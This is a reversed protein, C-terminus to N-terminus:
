DGKKRLKWAGGLLTAVTLLAVCTGSIASACGNDIAPEPDLTVTVDSSDAGGVPTTADFTDAPVSTEPDTVVPDEADTTQDASDNTDIPAMGDITLTLPQTYLTVDQDGLRYTHSLLIIVEGSIAGATIKSGEVTILEGGSLVTVDAALRGDRRDYYTVLLEMDRTQDAKLKQSNTYVVSKVYRKLVDANDGTLGSYGWIFHNRYVSDNGRFTWPFVGIGRILAARIANEGYGSYSPNLTANTKGIFSMVAKMDADSDVEDLYGSCLAGVSMEPYDRRMTEMIGVNFTIVSCQGYMDYQDVLRKIAPVIETKNSKIEIFLRCNTGQFCGLYDELRPIRCNKYSEHNEYGKNVYLESLQAWTSAEVPLDKNCTRGTTGDHMVVVEGDKTLYVDIEICDAGHEFAYLAGEITNEPAKSPIGRHGVNLPQRTMTNEPLGCALALLTATDDSIVGVAGSLLADYATPEDMADAARVWVNIQNDYLYQVMEQRAFAAPLVAVSAANSKVVRRIELCREKTLNPVGDMAKTFDVAGRVTPMKTRATNVLAADESLIMFDSFKSTKVFTALADVAATNSPILIPLIKYETTTLVESFTSFAKGEGNLIELKDNVTYIAAAPLNKGAMMATLEAESNVERTIAVDGVINTGPQAVSIYTPTTEGTESGGYTGDAAANQAIEEATLVRNYFRIARYTTEFLKSGEAHGIFLNDAGMAKPAAVEAMLDGDVYICCKGGVEFTVAITGHDILNLGDPVTPRENGPNAAFKFELVDNSNRRFLAFHDNKSNLFTNFSGGISVFEDFSLEVTFANSNVLDVIPQPFNHQAGKVYLGADNFYSKDSVNVPLDNDGILDEWVAEQEGSKIGSYLSVLGDSVYLDTVQAKGDVALNHKIESESLARNYFRISRYLADFHRHEESHGFFLDGVGMASPAPMASMREGNIYIISEGGVEYTVTIVADQLLALCNEVKNRSPAANGAFKFELVDESIRRFLAFHDNTSNMITSYADATSVLNAINIEVTFADGNVTDVIAQPFYNQAASLMLGDETFHNKDNKKVTVDNGGILDEWVDSNTNHGARTNQTGSYLAVLGATVYGTKVPSVFDATATTEAAAPITMGMLLTPLAIALALWLSLLKQTKMCIRESSVRRELILGNYYM